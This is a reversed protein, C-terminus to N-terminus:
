FPPQRKLTRLNSKIDKNKDKVIYSVAGEFDESTKLM